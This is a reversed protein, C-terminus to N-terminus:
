NKVFSDEFEWSCNPLEFDPFAVYCALSKSLIKRSLTLQSSQREFAYICYTRSSSSRRSRTCQQGWIDFVAEWAQFMHVCFWKAHAAGSPLLRGEVEPYVYNVGLEKSNECFAQQFARLTSEAGSGSARAWLELEAVMQVSQEGTTRKLFCSLSNICPSVPVDIPLISGYLYGLEQSSCLGDPERSQPLDVDWILPSVNTIKCLTFLTGM